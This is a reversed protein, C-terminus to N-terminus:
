EKEELLSLVERITQNTECGDDACDGVGHRLKEISERLAQTQRNVTSEIFSQIDYYPQVQPNKSGDDFYDFFRRSYEQRWWSNSSSPNTMHTPM